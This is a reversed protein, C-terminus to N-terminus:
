EAPDVTVSVGVGALPVVKAQVLAESPVAIQEPDEGHVKVIELLVSTAPTNVAEPIWGAGVKLM